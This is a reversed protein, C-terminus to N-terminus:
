FRLNDEELNGRFLYTLPLKSILHGTGQNQGFFWIIFMGGEEQLLLCRTITLFVDIM